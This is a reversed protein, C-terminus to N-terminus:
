KGATVQSQANSVDSAVITVGNRTLTGKYARDGDHPIWGEMNLPIPSDARIWEGNYKRVIHIHTGTTRGGECSPYGISEGAQLFVGEPARGETAVHLYFIDWGTREEGDGDLDLVVIGTESRVVMGDAMAVAYEQPAAKFCGSQSSPPAFDVAAFPEGQGWGTHPAGTYTWTHGEPFPLVFPPQRLNGPILIHAEPEGFLARYTQFFGTESIARAYAEGSLIRSFYYQIGVTAANQWPDPRELTGDPHEFETLHGSRWGYYGNNLANAAWVLQLYMGRHMTPEEYGLIYPTDPPSPNTLAGAQYELLALLVRPSVSFNLAVYEVIEAGTRNKDGVYDEYNSLWGPYADVFAQTDFGVADPGNVFASDPLIHLPNGWFPLYYIPIRMPMGPPLTTVDEPILPNAELIEEITTNFHAALAPLTDGTQATYSVWEGPKYEPRAAIPTATPTEVAPTPLIEEYPTPTCGGLLLLIGVLPILLLPTRPTRMGKIM